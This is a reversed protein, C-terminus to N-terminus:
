LERINWAKKSRDWFIEYRHGATLSYTFTMEEGSANDTTSKKITYVTCGNKVWYYYGRAPAITRSYMRGGSCGYQFHLTTTSSNQLYFANEPAAMAPVVSSVFALVFAAVAVRIFRLSM